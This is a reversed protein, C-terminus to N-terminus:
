KWTKAIRELDIPDGLGTKIYHERPIKLLFFFFVNKEELM